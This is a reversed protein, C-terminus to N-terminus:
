SGEDAEGGGLRQVETMEELSFIKELNLIILFLEDRKGMGRIFESRLRTGINPPPEIQEADLEFVEQVSDALAGLLLDEGEITIEVIVVCTNITKETRGMSFKEKLDVVPVVSGRLNIVGRMFPPAQPIKTVRDFELVERVRNIELAYVEEDLVFSLYQNTAMETDM